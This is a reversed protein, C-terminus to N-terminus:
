ICSCVLYWQSVMLSEGNVSLIECHQVRSALFLLCTEANQWSWVFVVRSVSSVVIYVFQNSTPAFKLSLVSVFVWCTKWKYLPMVRSRYMHFRYFEFKIQSKYNYANNTLILGNQQPLSFNSFQFLNQSTHSLCPYFKLHGEAVAAQAYFTM